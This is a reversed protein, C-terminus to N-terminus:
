MGEWYKDASTRYYVAENIHKVSIEEEDALDAITRATRLVKDYARASMGLREFLQLLHKQQTEGLPCYAKLEAKGMESNFRVGTGGFRQEQRARARMVRERIDASREGQGSAVMDKVKIGPVEVCLDMRDRVPGSIRSLYRRIESASCHCKNEDPYYGCPCPNLAAVLMFDAPYEINGYARTILVKREELPQRLVDLVYRSFETMEDLFLVGRHALSVAGPAPVRGGGVLACGTVTHHPAVFPRNTLIKGDKLRGSVSYVSSVEISEDYTLPPLISPIRKAIMTKGSGPPGVLMLHHFGAAAIEAARKVSEQGSIDAFDVAIEQIDGPNRSKGAPLIGCAEFGQSDSALANTVQSLHSVGYVCMGDIVAAEEENGQPVVCVKVGSAAARQVIPLIGKVAKVEGNLGLEGAFLIGEAKTGSIKGMSILLGVAAPLDFLTGSKHRDAPSFNITIHSPPLSFGMNKLAVRVREKAEGAEKSLSGIMEMCPLGSAVDVEVQVLYSDIGCFAGTLVTSFM